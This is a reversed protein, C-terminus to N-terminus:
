IKIKHFLLIIEHAARQVRMFHEMFDQRDLEKHDAALHSAVNAIEPIPVDEGLNFPPHLVADVEHRLMRLRLDLVFGRRDAPSLSEFRDKAWGLGLGIRVSLVNMPTGHWTVHSGILRHDPETVQLGWGWSSEDDGERDIPEIELNMASLLWSTVTEPSPPAITGKLARQCESMLRRLTAEDEIPCVQNHTFELHVVRDGVLAVKEVGLVRKNPM